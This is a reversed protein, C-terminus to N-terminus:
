FFDAALRFGLHDGRYVPEARRRYRIWSNKAVLNWSGGRYLMPPVPGSVTNECWEDVNGLMDYLGFANPQKGGVPQTSGGSNGAYWAIEDLEGYRDKSSGARAAHEWEAESPLRYNKGTMQNLKVIFEQVDDWSIREVPYNGGKAFRAPNSGMVASWQAQTVEHKGILFNRDPIKVMEIEISIERTEEAQIFGLSGSEKGASGAALVWVLLLCTLFAIARIPKWREKNM